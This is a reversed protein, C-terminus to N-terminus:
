FRYANSNYIKELKLTDNIHVRRKLLMLLKEGNAKQGSQM